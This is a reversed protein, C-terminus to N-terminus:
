ATCCPRRTTTPTTPTHPAFGEGSGPAGLASLRQDFASFLDPPTQDTM